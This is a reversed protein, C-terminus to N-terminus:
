GIAEQPTRVHIKLFFIGLRFCRWNDFTYLILCWPGQHISSDVNLYESMLLESQAPKANWQEEAVLVRQQCHWNGNAMQWCSFTSMGMAM